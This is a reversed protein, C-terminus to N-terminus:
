AHNVRVGTLKIMALVFLLRSGFTEIDNNDAYFCDFFDIKFSKEFLITIKSKILSLSSVCIVGYM